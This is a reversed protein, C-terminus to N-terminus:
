QGILSKYEMARQKRRINSINIEGKQIQQTLYDGLQNDQAFKLLSNELTDPNGELNIYEQIKKNFEKENIPKKGRVSEDVMGQLKDLKEGRKETIRQEQQQAMTSVAMTKGRQASRLNTFKSLLNEDQEGKTYLVKGTKASVINGADDTLYKGEVMGRMAAPTVSLLAAGKERELMTDEGTLKEYGMKVLNPIQKGTEVAGFVVPAISRWSMDGVLNTTLSGSLYKDSVATPLGFAATGGLKLALQRPSPTDPDIANTGVLIGYIGEAIDMGIMGTVGAMGVSVAVATLAATPNNTKKATEIYNALQTFQNVKYSQLRGLMEGTFGSNALVGPKAYSEYNVQYEHTLNKAMSRAEAESYGSNKLYENFINFSTTRAFAETALLSGSVGFKEIVNGLKTRSESEVLGPKIVENETLFKARESLERGIAKNAAISTIDGLSKAMGIIVPSVIDKSGGMTALETLKPITNIPQLINQAAAAPNWFGLWLKTLGSSAKRAGSTFAGSVDRGTMKALSTSLDNAFKDYGTTQARLDDFYNQLVSYTNSPGTAEGVESIYNAAEKNAKWEEFGRFYNEINKKADYYNERDSKWLKEGEAGIVGTKHELHRKFQKTDMARKSVMNQVSEQARQVLPDESGLLDMYTEFYPALGGRNRFADSTLEKRYKPESIAFESPAEGREVAKRNLDDVVYKAANRASGRNDETIFAILRGQADRLEVAWPGTFKAPMYNDVKPIEKGTLRQFESHINDFNKQITENVKAQEPDLKFQYDKNFQGESRQRLVEGARGQGLLTELKKLGTTVEQIRTNAAISAKDKIGVLYALSNRVGDNKIKEFGIRGRSKIQNALFGLSATDADPAAKVYNLAEDRSVDRYASLEKDLGPINSLAAAARENQTEAERKDWGARIEQPTADPFAQQIKEQYEPFTEAKQTEVFKQEEVATRAAEEPPMTLEPATEEVKRAGRIKGEMPKAPKIDVTSPPLGTEPNIEQLEPQYGQGRQSPEAVPEERVPERFQQERQLYAQEIEQQKLYETSPISPEEWAAVNGRVEERKVNEPAFLDGGRETMYAEETAARKIPIGNEDVVLESPKFGFMGRQTEPPTTIPAQQAEVPLEGQKTPQRKAAFDVVDKDAALPKGEEVKKFQELLSQTPKPAPKGRLLPAGMTGIISLAEAGAGIEKQTEPTAGMAGAAQGAIGGVAEPARFIPEFPKMVAEYAPKGREIEAAAEPSGSAILSTPALESALQKGEELAQSTSKGEIFKSYLGKGIGAPLTYINGALDLLAGTTGKAKESITGEAGLLGKMADENTYKLLDAKPKEQQGLYGLIKQKAKAPDAESIDYQQGQYEYIPM